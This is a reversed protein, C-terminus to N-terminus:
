TGFPNAPSTAPAPTPASGVPATNTPYTSAPAMSERPLTPRLTSSSPPRPAPTYAGTSPVGFGSSPASISPPVGGQPSGVGPRPVAGSKPVGGPQPEAGAAASSSTESSEEAHPRNFAIMQSVAIVQEGLGTSLRLRDGILRGSLEEDGSLQVVVQHPSDEGVPEIRVIAARKLEVIQGRVQLKLASEALDGVLRCEGALECHPLALEAPDAASGAVSADAPSASFYDALRSTSGTQDGFRATPWVIEERRVLGILRTGDRFEFCQM